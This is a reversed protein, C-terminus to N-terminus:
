IHEVMAKKPKRKKNAGKSCPGPFLSAGKAAEGFAREV